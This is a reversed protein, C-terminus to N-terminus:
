ARLVLNWEWCLVFQACQYVATGKADLLCLCLIASHRLSAQAVCHTELGQLHYLERRTVWVGTLFGLLNVPEDHRVKPSDKTQDATLTRDAHPVRKSMDGWSFDGHQLGRGM